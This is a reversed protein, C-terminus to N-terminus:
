DKKSRKLDVLMQRIESQRNRPCVLLGNESDIVIFGELGVLLMPKDSSSMVLCQASDFTAINRGSVANDLYDHERVRYVEEWLTIDSWAFNGVLVKVRPNNYLIGQRFSVPTSQQYLRLIGDREKTTGWIGEMEGFLQVLEPLNQRYLDFLVSARVVKIGSYWLFDGSRFFANAIEQTPNETFTKVACIPNNDANPFYQIYGYHIDPQHARVGAVVLENHEAAYRLAPQLNQVFQESDVVFHDSPLILLLADPNTRAIRIAAHLTAVATNKRIPESIISSRPLEPLQQRALNTWGDLTVLHIRDVETLMRANQYASQVLSMGTGAVDLFQKPLDPSSLPWLRSGSGGALIVAHLDYM